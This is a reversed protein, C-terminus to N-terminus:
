RRLEEPNIGAPLDHDPCMLIGDRLGMADALTLLLFLHTSSPLTGQRWRLLRYPKVGMLRALAKWSLGSEEKFRELRESFDEPFDFQVPRYVRRQVGM